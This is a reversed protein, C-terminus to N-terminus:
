YLNLCTLALLSSMVKISFGQNTRAYLNQVGMRQLQSNVTEIKRRHNNLGCWEVFTNPKMNSKHQAVLWVGYPKRTTPRLARKDKSSVYGKDAYVSAGNPLGVTLEYVATLDHFSAPLMQFSVPVGIPTCVLHLRWGYFSSWRKSACKGFFYRGDPHAARIKRCRWARVRKCVPLPMSDIVFAEGQSFLQGIVQVICELWGALAHVRRNFRSISLPKTIYRMAKMIFLAREHHNHFYMSSVVAITLVEADSVGTQQHHHAKHGLSRLTTDIIYYATIIKTDDM